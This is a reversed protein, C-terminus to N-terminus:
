EIYDEADRQWDILKQPWGNRATELEKPTSTSQPMRVECIWRVYDEVSRLTDNGHAARAFVMEGVLYDSRILTMLRYTAMGQRAVYRLHEYEITSSVGAKTLCSKMLSLAMSPMTVDSFPMSVFCVDIMSEQM